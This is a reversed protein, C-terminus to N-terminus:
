ALKDIAEAAQFDRLTLGGVDHTFYRLSVRNYVNVIEPHHNQQEAILGVKHIFQLAEKFDKFAWEKKISEGDWRWGKLKKINQEIEPISLKSM